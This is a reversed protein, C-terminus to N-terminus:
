KKNNVTLNFKLESSCSSVGQLEFVKFDYDSEPNNSLILSFDVSQNKESDENDKYPIDLQFENNKEDSDEIKTVVVRINGEEYEYIIEMFEEDDSTYHSIELNNTIIKSEKKLFLTMTEFPENQLMRAPIIQYISITVKLTM